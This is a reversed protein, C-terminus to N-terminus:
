SEGETAEEAEETAEEAVPAEDEGAVAEEVPADNTVEEMKNHKSRIFRGIHVRASDFRRSGM